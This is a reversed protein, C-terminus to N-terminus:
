FQSRPSVFAATLLSKVLLGVSLMLSCGEIKAIRSVTEMKDVRTQAVESFYWVITVLYFRLFQRTQSIIFLAVTM